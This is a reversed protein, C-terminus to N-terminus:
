VVLTPNKNKFELKINVSNLKVKGNVKLICFNENENKIGLKGNM